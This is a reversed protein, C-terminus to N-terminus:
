NLNEISAFLYVHLRRDLSAPLVYYQLLTTIWENRRGIVQQGLHRIRSHTHYLQQPECVECAQGQNVCKAESGTAM